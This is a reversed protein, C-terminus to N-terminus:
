GTLYGCIDQGPPVLAFSGGHGANPSARPLSSPLVVHSSVQALHLIEWSPSESPSSVGAQAQLWKIQIRFSLCICLAPLSPLMM